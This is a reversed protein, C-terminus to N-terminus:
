SDPAAMRRLAEPDRIAIRGREIAILGERELRQLVRTV